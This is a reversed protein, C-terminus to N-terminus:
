LKNASGFIKIKEIVKKQVANIVAPMLKYPKIENPNERLVKKLAEIYTKRLETNINVKVIGNKVSKKLDEKKVGSGGHLVLFKDNSVKKLERLRKLNIRPSRGCVSMGHFTGINVALSDVGTLKIFKEAEEPSTLDEKSINPSEKLMISEGKTFDIEGEVLVNKKSAYRIVKKATKINNGLSLKSGDFHVADYGADIADKIYGLSGGHDLNLFVPAWSRRLLKVMAVAEELGFFRSEGESTGVIVPAKMRKAASVIAKLIDMNSFNFQGIAWGGKQAKKLYNKLNM